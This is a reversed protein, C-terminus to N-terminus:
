YYKPLFILYKEGLFLCMPLEPSSQLHIVQSSLSQSNEQDSILLREHQSLLFSNATSMFLPLFLDLSYELFFIKGSVKYCYTHLLGTSVFTFPFIVM